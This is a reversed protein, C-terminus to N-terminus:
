GCHCGTSPREEGLVFRRHGPLLADVDVLIVADAAPAFAEVQAKTAEDECARLLLQCAVCMDGCSRAADPQVEALLSGPGHAALSRYFRSSELDRLIADLPRDRVSGLHFLPSDSVVNPCLLVAGDPALTPATLVYPCRAELNPASAVEETARGVSSREVRCWDVLEVDCDAEACAEIVRAVPWETGPWEVVCACVELDLRQAERLYRAYHSVPVRRAHSADYSLMVRQLGAAKMDALRTEPRDEARTFTSTTMEVYFGISTAVEIQAELEPHLLPEGGSFHVLGVGARKADRLVDALTDTDLDRGRPTAKISCHSCGVNCRETARVILAYPRAHPSAAGLGRDGVHDM